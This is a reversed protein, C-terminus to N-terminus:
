LKVIQDCHLCKFFGKPIDNNSNGIQRWTHSCKGIKRLYAEYRGQEELERLEFDGDQFGNPLENDRNM